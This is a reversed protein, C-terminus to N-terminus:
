VETVKPGYLDLQQLVTRCDPYREAPDLALCGKLGVKFNGSTGQKLPLKNMILREIKESTCFNENTAAPGQEFVLEQLIIGFSYVDSTPLKGEPLQM